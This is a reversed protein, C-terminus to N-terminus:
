SLIVEYDLLIGNKIERSNLGTVYIKDSTALEFFSTSDFEDGIITEKTQKRERQKIEEKSETKKRIM